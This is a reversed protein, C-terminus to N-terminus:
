SQFRSQKAARPVYAPSSHVAPMKRLVVHLESNAAIGHADAHRLGLELLEGFRTDCLIRDAEPRVHPEDIAHADHGISADGGIERVARQRDRQRLGVDLAPGRGVLDRDAALLRDASALRQLNEDLLVELAQRGPFPLVLGVKERIRSLSGTLRVELRAPSGLHYWPLGSRAVVSTIAFTSGRDAVVSAVIRARASAFAPRGPASNGM